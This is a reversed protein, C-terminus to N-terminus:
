LAPSMSEVWVVERWIWNAMLIRQYAPLPASEGAVAAPIKARAQKVRRVLAGRACVAQWLGSGRFSPNAILEEQRGKRVEAPITRSPRRYGGAEAKRHLVSPLELLNGRTASPRQLDLPDQLHQRLRLSRDSRPLRSSDRREHFNEKSRPIWGALGFSSGPLYDHYSPSAGSGLRAARRATGPCGALNPWVPNQMETAPVRRPEIRFCM